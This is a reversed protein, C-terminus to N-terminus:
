KDQFPLLLNEQALGPPQPQLKAGVGEKGPDTSGRPPRATILLWVLSTIPTNLPAAIPTFQADETLGVGPITIKISKGQFVFSISDLPQWPGWAPTM